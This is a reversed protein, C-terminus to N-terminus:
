RAVAASQPHARWQQNTRLAAAAAGVAIVAEEVETGRREAV